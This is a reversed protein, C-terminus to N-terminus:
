RRTLGSGAPLLRFSQLGDGATPKSVYNSRSSVSSMVALRASVPVVLNSCVAVSRAWRVLRGGGGLSHSQQVGPVLPLPPSQWLRSAPVVTIGRSRQFLRWGGRCSIGIAGRTAAPVAIGSCRRHQASKLSPV